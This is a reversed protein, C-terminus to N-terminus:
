GPPKSIIPCSAILRDSAELFAKRGPAMKLALKMDAQAQVCQGKRAEARARNFRFDPWSPDYQTAQIYDQLAQDIQGLREYDIGRNNFAGAVDTAMLGGKKLCLTYLDIQTQTDKAQFASACASFDARAPRPLCALVALAVAGIIALRSPM